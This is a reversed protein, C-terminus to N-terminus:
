DSTRDAWLVGSLWMAYGVLTLLAASTTGYIPALVLNAGINFAAPVLAIIAVEKHRGHAILSVFSPTACVMAVMAGTLVCTMWLEPRYNGGSIVEVAWPALLASIAAVGLVLALELKTIGHPKVTGASESSFASPLRRHFEANSITRFVRDILGYVASYTALAVLDYQALILRDGSAMIWLSLSAVGVGSIPSISGSLDGFSVRVGRYAVLFGAPVVAVLACALLSMELEASDPAVDLLFLLLAVWLVVRMAVMLAYRWFRQRGLLYASALQDVLMSVMGAASIISVNIGVGVIQPVLGAALISLGLPVFDRRLALEIRTSTGSSLQEINRTSITTGVLAVGMAYTAMVVSYTAFDDASLRRTLIIVLALSSLALVGHAVLTPRSLVAARFGKV